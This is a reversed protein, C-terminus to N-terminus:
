AKHDQDRNETVLHTQRLGRTCTTVVLANHTPRRKLHLFNSHGDIVVEIQQDSAFTVVTREQVVHVSPCAEIALDVPLVRDASYRLAEARDGERTVALSTHSDAVTGHVVLQDDHDGIQFHLWRQVLGVGPVQM